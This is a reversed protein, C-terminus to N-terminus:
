DRQAMVNASVLVAYYLVRTVVPVRTMQSVSPM